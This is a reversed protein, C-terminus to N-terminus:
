SDFIKLVLYSFEFLHHDKLPILLFLSDFVHVPNLLSRLGPATSHSSRFTASTKNLGHILRGIIDGDDLAIHRICAARSLMEHWLLIALSVSRTTWANDSPPSWWGGLVILDSSLTWHRGVLYGMMLYSVAIFTRLQRWLRRANIKLKRRSWYRSGCLRSFDDWTPIHSTFSITLYRRIAKLLLLFQSSEQILNILSVCNINNWRNALSCLISLLFYSIVNSHTM